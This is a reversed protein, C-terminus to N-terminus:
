VLADLMMLLGQTVTHELCAAHRTYAFFTSLFTRPVSSMPTSNSSMQVALAIEACALPM